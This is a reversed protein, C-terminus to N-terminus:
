KPAPPTWGDPLLVWGVFIATAFAAAMASRESLLAPLMRSRRALFVLALAVAFPAAGGYVGIEMAMTM